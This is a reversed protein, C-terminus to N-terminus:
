GYLDADWKSDDDSLTWKKTVKWASGSKTKEAIAGSYLWNRGPFSPNPGPPTDITALDALANNLATKYTNETWTAGFTKYDKIGKKIKAILEKGLDTQVYKQILVRLEVGNAAQAPELAPAGATITPSVLDGEKKGDLLAKALVREKEPIKAYRPHLLISQTGSTTNLTYSGEKDGSDDAEEILGYTLTIKVSTGTGTTSRNIKKLVLDASCSNGSGDRWEVGNFYETKSGIEPISSAVETWSGSQTYVLTGTPTGAIDTTLQCSEIVPDPTGYSENNM